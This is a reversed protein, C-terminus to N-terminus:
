MRLASPTGHDIRSYRAKGQTEWLHPVDSLLRYLGGEPEGDYEFGDSSQVLLYAVEHKSTQAKEACGGSALVGLLVALTWARISIRRSVYEANM